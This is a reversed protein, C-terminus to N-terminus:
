NRPKSTKFTAEICFLMEMVTKGTAQLRPGLLIADSLWDGNGLDEYTALYYGGASNSTHDVQPGSLVKSPAQRRAWRFEEESTDYFGCMGSEFDCTGCEAEDSGDGCEDVFNCVKDEGICKKNLCQFQGAGCPSMTSGATTTTTTYGVCRLGPTYELDDIAIDGDFGDGVIAEIHIRFENPSQVDVQLRQWAFGQEGNLGAMFRPGTVTDNMYVNLSGVDEGHMFYWLGFCGMASTKELFESSIVAKDGLLAPYSSEVYLYVGEDTGLTHDVHPGTNTSDTRGQNLLWDFDDQRYQLWSCITYDEFDCDIAPRCVGKKITVDDIGVFGTFNNTRYAEFLVSYDFFSNRIKAQGFRWEDKEHADKKWLNFKVTDGNSLLCDESVRLSAEGVGEM